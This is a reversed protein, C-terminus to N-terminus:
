SARLRWIWVIKGGSLFRDSVDTAANLLGGPNYRLDLIMAKAGAAKMEKVAADLEKATSKTFNTM